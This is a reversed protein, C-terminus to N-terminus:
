YQTINTKVREVSIYDVCYTLLYTTAWVNSGFKESEYRSLYEFDKLKGMEGVAFLWRKEFM